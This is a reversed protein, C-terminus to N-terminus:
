QNFYINPNGYLHMAAWGRPSYFGFFEDFGKVASNVNAEQVAFSVSKGAKLAEMFGDLWTATIAPNYKWSPAIVAKYGQSLLQHVFSVLKQTYIDKTQSGSDCIFVVAILGSGFVRGIGKENLLAHGADSGRTHVSRFGFGSKAGHAVFVNITASLQPIPYVGNQIEVKYKEELLSRLTKDALYLVYDEDITPIWCQLNLNAKEINIIKGHEGFYEFSVVNTIPRHLGIFDYQHEELFVKVLEQHANLSVNAQTKIVIQLLNNPFNAMELSYTVLIENFDFPAEIKAFSLNKLDQVYDSEQQNIPYGDKEDFYFDDIKSHWVKMKALDWDPLHQLAINKKDDIFLAAVHYDYEFLWMLIQGPLLNLKDLLYKDYNNLIELRKDDKEKVFPSHGAAFSEQFTLTNDNIVLGALLIQNVKIPDTSIKIVNNALLELATIEAAYDEVARTEFVKYLADILMQPSKEQRPFFQAKLNDLTNADTLKELESLYTIISAPITIYGKAEINKLNYIYVIWPVAGQQGFDAIARINKDLFEETMKLTENISSLLELKASLYSLTIKQLNYANLSFQSLVKYVRDAMEHFHFNRFFLLSNYFGDFVHYEKVEPMTNLAALYANGYFAADAANKQKTFCKFSALWGLLPVQENIFSFALSEEAFDRAKQYHGNYNLLDIFNLFVSYLDKEFQPLGKAFASTYIVISYLMNIDEESYNKPANTSFFWFLHEVLNDRDVESLNHTFDVTSVSIEKVGNPQNDLIEELQTQAKDHDIEKEDRSKYKKIPKKSLISLQKHLGQILFFTGELGIRKFSSLLEVRAVRDTKDVAFFSFSLPILYNIRDIVLKKGKEDRNYDLDFYYLQQLYFGLDSVSEHMADSLPQLELAESFIVPSFGDFSIKFQKAVLNKIIEHVPAPQYCFPVLNEDFSSDDDYYSYSSLHESHFTEPQAVMIARVYKGVEIYNKLLIADLVPVSNVVIGSFNPHNTILIGQITFDERNLLIKLNKRIIKINNKLYEAYDSLTEIQNAAIYSELPYKILCCQLVIIQNLTQYVLLGSAKLDNLIPSIDVKKFTKDQETDPLEIELINAFHQLQSKASCFRDIVQDFQYSLHGGALPALLFHFDNGIKILPKAWVDLSQSLPQTLANTFQIVLNESYGSTKVLTDILHQQSIKIPVAQYSQSEITQAVITASDLRNFVIRLLEFLVFLDNVKYKGFKEIKVLHLHFYFTLFTANVIDRITNKEKIGTNKFVILGNDIEYEHQDVPQSPFKQGAVLFESIINRERFRNAKKIKAYIEPENKFNITDGEKYVGMFEFQYKYFDNKLNGLASAVKFAEYILGTVYREESVIDKEPNLNIKLVIQILEVCSDNISDSLDVSTIEGGNANKFKSQSLNNIDEVKGDPSVEQNLFNAASLKLYEFNTFAILREILQQSDLNIKKILSQIDDSYQKYIKHLEQIATVLQIGKEDFDVQNRYKTTVEGDIIKKFSEFDFGDDLPNLQQNSKIENTIIESFRIKEM